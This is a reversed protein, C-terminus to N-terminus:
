RKGTSLFLVARTDSNLFVVFDFAPLMESLMQFCSIWFDATGCKGTQQLEPIVSYEDKM